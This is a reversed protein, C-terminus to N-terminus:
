LKSPSKENMVSYKLEPVLSLRITSVARVKLEEWNEDSMNELNKEQLPKLLGQQVLVDKM